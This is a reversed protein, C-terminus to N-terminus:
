NHWISYSTLSDQTGTQLYITYAGKGYVSFAQSIDFEIQFTLGSQVWIQATITIGQQSQFNPPLTMGVFTGQAYAGNYPSNDLQYNTLNSPLSDYFINVQSLTMQKSLSGVLSVQNQTVSFTSWQVYDNIFDEVFYLQNSDYSIGISVKNHLPNLINDRHGWNWDADNNMMNNELNKLAVEQNSPAGQTYAAINEAVAGRGGALTYRMYPKSGDTGWHSFYDSKLMDDAHVQGSNISSLNVPTLGNSTRDTNIIALTYNVLENYKTVSSSTTNTSSSPSQSSLPRNTSLILSLSPLNFLLAGVVILVIGVCVLKMFPPSFPKERYTRQKPPYTQNTEDESEEVARKEFHFDGESIVVEKTKGTREALVSPEQPTATQLFEKVEERSLRRPQGALKSSCKKCYEIPDHVDYLNGCNPCVYHRITPETRIYKGKKWHANMRDLAETMLERREQEDIKLHELIKKSYQFDPHSKERNWEKQFELKYEPSIGDPGRVFILRPQLHKECFWIDCSECRYM